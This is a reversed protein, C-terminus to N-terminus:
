LGGGAAAVAQDFKGATRRKELESLYQLVKRPDGGDELFRVLILKSGPLLDAQVGPTMTTGYYEEAFWLAEWTEPCEAFDARCAVMDARALNAALETQDHEAIHPASAAAAASLLFGVPPLIVSFIAVVVQGVETQLWAGADHVAPKGWRSWDRGVESKIQRTARRFVSKVSGGLQDPFGGGLGSM